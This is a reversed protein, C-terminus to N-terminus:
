HIVHVRNVYNFIKKRLSCFMQKNDQPEGLRKKILKLLPILSRDQKTAEAIFKEGFVKEVKKRYDPLSQCRSLLFKPTYLQPQLPKRGKGTNDTDETQTSITVLPPRFSSTNMKTLFITNKENPERFRKVIPRNSTEIQQRKRTIVNVKHSLHSLANVNVSYNSTFHSSLTSSKTDSRKSLIKNSQFKHTTISRM